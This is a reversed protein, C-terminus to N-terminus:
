VLPPRQLALQIHRDQLGEVIQKFDDRDVKAKPGAIVHCNPDVTGLDTKTVKKQQQKQPQEHTTRETCQIAEQGNM